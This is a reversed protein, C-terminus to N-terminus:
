YKLIRQVRQSIATLIEYPITHCTEAMKQLMEQSDFFVAEDGEQCDIGSIDVMVMDMCVNGLIPAKQNQIRVYGKGNGLQRSIGDAHGIPLTASKIKKSAIFARNYGISEGAELQHIQSIVTRLTSSNRLHKSDAPNNAIGHLGIGLRVMDYQARPYNLVGSSNLLHVIPKTKLQPLLIELISNFETIQQITFGSEKTDDSAALHSFVGTVELSTANMLDILAPINKKSFGIRNLGTNFKLHIPYAVLSATKTLDTFAQLSQISYLSPTLQQEILSPFQAIQPHLVLIPNQIGAARLAIGEQTYAVAFYAVESALTKAIAVADSGYGFAKVVACIETKPQLQQKYYALNHKLANGDIELVTVHTNM